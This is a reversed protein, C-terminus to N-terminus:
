SLVWFTLLMNGNLAAAGNNVITIEASGAAPKIRSVNMQADNAGVNTATALIASTLGIFSNTLTVVLTTGAAQTYGAFTISGVRVNSTVAVTASPGASAAVQVNTISVNGVTGGGITVGGTGAAGSNITIGGAAAGAQLQIADSASEGGNIVISGATSNVTVDFAGTATLNTAGASDLSLLGTTDITIGATGADIDMGGAANSANIRVANVAAKGSDLALQGATTNVTLDFAGTVTMNSAAAADFSMAGTTDVTIGGTGVNIDVGGAANSANIQVADVAAEGGTVIVSGATSNVTLDFAGTTTLNTTGAADLSLLGTTDVTIGATGADVDIGGAANSANVRVANVAAKGSSLALQGATTNVTLDFAGTVTFNSAAAADLTIAGTTDVDVGGTGSDIDVGGAANSANIDIADVAAEGGTIVVSGATTNLTLDAAGTVTFHSATKADISVSTNTTLAIAGGSGANGITTAGPGSTNLHVVGLETIATLGDANGINVAKTGSAATGTAINLTQTGLLNTGSMINVTKTAGADTSVGGTALSLTDTHATNVVGGNIVTTRSVTPTINGLDITTVTATPAMTLTTVPDIDVSASSAIVVDGGTARSGITTDGTGTKNINVAGDAVLDIDGAVATLVMDNSGASILMGGAADSADIVIADAVAAQSEIYVAGATSLIGVAAMTTAGNGTGSTNEILLGTSTGGDAQIILADQADEGAVIGISGLGASIAIDKSAADTAIEIGGSTSQISISDAGTGQLSAIEITGSTGGNERLRIVEAEDVDAEVRFEGTIATPGPDVTLSTFTGGGSIQSVWTAEGNAFSTLTYVVDASSDIWFQGVEYQQAQPGSTPPPTNAVIPPTAIKQQPSNVNGFIFSM